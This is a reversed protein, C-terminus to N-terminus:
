GRQARQIRYAHPCDFANTRETFTAIGACSQFCSACNSPTKARVLRDAVM